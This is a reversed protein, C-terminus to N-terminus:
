ANSPSLMEGEGSEPSQFGYRYKLSGLRRVDRWFISDYSMTGTSPRSASKYLLGTGVNESSVVVVTRTMGADYYLRCLVGGETRIMKIFSSYFPCMYYAAVPTIGVPEAAFYAVTVRRTPHLVSYGRQPSSPRLFQQISYRGFIAVQVDIDHVQPPSPERRLPEVFPLKQRDDVALINLLEMLERSRLLPLSSLFVLVFSLSFSYAFAVYVRVVEMETVCACADVRM